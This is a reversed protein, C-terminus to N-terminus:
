NNSHIRRVEDIIKRNEEREKEIVRGLRVLKGERTALNDAHIKRLRQEEHQQKNHLAELKREKKQDFSCQMSASKRAEEEVSWEICKKVGYLVLGLPIIFQIM